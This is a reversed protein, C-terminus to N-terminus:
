RDRETTRDRLIDRLRVAERRSDALLREWTIRVTAYGAHLATADRERDAEFASRHTHYAYGDLEVILKADEFLIDVEHGDLVANVQPTPLGHRRAFGLFDDELRSRTPAPRADDLCTRLRGVAPHRPCRAIVDALAAPHVLGALRADNVARTLAADTLGPAIDLITRAPSTVRIGLHVRVDAGTLTACRHTVIEPRRRQGPATVELPFRWAGTIGWLAAASLHSLVAGLGCALVAAAARAVAHRPLHGVGYVGAHARVLRGSELRSGIARESLGLDLLQRRTVHGWQREALSAIQGDLSRKCARASKESM